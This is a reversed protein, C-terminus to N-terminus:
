QRFTINEHNMIRGITVGLWVMDWCVEVFPWLTDRAGARTASGGVSVARVLPGPGVCDQLFCEFWCLMKWIKTPSWRWKWRRHLYSHSFQNSPCWRGDVAPCVSGLLHWLLLPLCRCPREEHKKNKMTVTTKNFDQQSTTSDISTLQGFWGHADALWQPSPPTERLLSKEACPHSMLMQIELSPLAGCNVSLYQQIGVTSPNCGAEAVLFLGSSNCNLFANGNFWASAHQIYTWWEDWIDRSKCGFTAGFEAQLVTRSLQGFKVTVVRIFFFFLFFQSWKGTFLCSCYM